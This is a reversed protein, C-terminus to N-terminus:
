TVDADEDELLSEAPAGAKPTYFLATQGTQGVSGVCVSGTSESLQLCLAARVDRPSGAFRLKVLESKSLQRRMEALMAPTLGEKGVRVSPDMRQGLGRLRSKQAGTLAITDM